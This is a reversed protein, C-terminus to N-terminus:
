LIGTFVDLNIIIMGAVMLLIAGPVMTLTVVLSVKPAAKAAQRRVEQARERRAEASIDRLAQSLPVGLEEAQLLATVFTAIPESGTRERVAVFADRRTVGVAMERLATLMEQALPGDHFEAVREVAQRFSLGAAVTVGLVDLFDPLDRDIQELRKRGVISLWLDMWGSFAIALLPGLLPQGAFMLIGGALFGLVIFGAQRQVYGTVTLREPRGARRLRRDLRDLRAPGYARLLTRLFLAGVADILAGSKRVRQGDTAEGTTSDVVAELGTTSLMRIGLAGLLVLGAAFVPLLLATM